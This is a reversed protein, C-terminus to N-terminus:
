ETYLDTLNWIKCHINLVIHINLSFSPLILVFIQGRILQINKTQYVGVLVCIIVSEQTLIQLCWKTFTQTSLLVSGASGERMVDSSCSFLGQVLEKKRKKLNIEAGKSVNWENLEQLCGRKKSTSFSYCDTVVVCM